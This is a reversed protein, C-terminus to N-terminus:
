PIASRRSVPVASRHQGAPQLIVAPFLGIGSVSNSTPTKVIPPWFLAILIAVWHVAAAIVVLSHWISRWFIPIELIYFVAGITYIVGGVALLILSAGSIHRSIPGIAIVVLWGLAVYLGTWVGDSLNLDIVKGYIGLGALGWIASTMAWAWDGSLIITTLPTYTGAIMVFIGIHDLRRLLPRCSGHSFNYAFSFSIMSTQGCAYIAVAYILGTSGKISLKLMVLGGLVSLLLGIVHM